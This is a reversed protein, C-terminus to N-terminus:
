RISPRRRALEDSAAMAVPQSMAERALTLLQNTPMGIVVQAMDHYVEWDSKETESVVKTTKSM